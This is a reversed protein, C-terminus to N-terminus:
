RALRGQVGRSREAPPGVSSREVVEGEGPVMLSRPVAGGLMEILLDVAVSGLETTKMRVTTLAPMVYDAIEGDHLAIVSVDRPVHLGADQAARLSGIGMLLTSAFIGTVEPHGVFISRSAEYGDAMTWSDRIEVVSSCGVEEVAADFGARRRASTEIEAPGLVAGVHRHGRSILYRTALRSGAEDDVIVSPSVGHLRRNVLVVPGVNMSAVDRFSDDHMTGSAFLLGDVRGDALLRTFTRATDGDSHSGIVIGYGLEEARREVGRVIPVYM